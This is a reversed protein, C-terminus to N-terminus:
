KKGAGRLLPGAYYLAALGLVIGGAYLLERPIVDIGGGTIKPPTLKSPTGAEIMLAQVNKIQETVFAVYQACNGPYVIATRSWFGSEAELINVASTWRADAVDLNEVKSAECIVQELQQLVVTLESCGMRAFMQDAIVFECPTYAGFGSFGRMEAKAYKDFLSRSGAGSFQSLAVRRPAAHRIIM